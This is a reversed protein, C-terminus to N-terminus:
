LTMSLTAAVANETYSHGGTVATGLVHRLELQGQLRRQFQRTLGVRLARNDQRVATTLSDSRSLILGASAQSRASLRYNYNAAVGKQHVNDNLSLLNSGLLQSDAQQLSLATNRTDFVSLVLLSHAGNFGASAQFQKQLMYRNSLYNVDNALSAPLGTAQLYAQVALRREASDPINPMFLRDLLDATDITAPLLFQSRSTTVAESYNINWVTHRSRHTAALAHSPGYFRRGSSASLSTRPSPNWEFGAHWNRGRTRGGLPQFDYDDYGAGATLAFGPRLRWSLSGGLNASTSGGALRDVLHQREYYLSWGVRREGNGALSLDVTDSHTDAYGRTSSTVADRTYRLQMDAFTGLRRVIYPSIRWSSVETRNSGAYYNGNVQPGFASLAQQGRSANADLFLFDDVVRAKLDAQLQRSSDNINPASRDTYKYAHLMFSAALQLRRTNESLVFSPALDTIFERHAQGPEALNVNDTWTETLQVGPSFRLEARCAPAFTLALAAALPLLVRGPVGPGRREAM